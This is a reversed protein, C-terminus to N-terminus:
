RRACEGHKGQPDGQARPSRGPWRVGSALEEPGGKQVAGQLWLQGQPRRKRSLPRPPGPPGWWCPDASRPLLHAPRVRGDQSCQAGARSDSYVQVPLWASPGAAARFGVKTQPTPSRPPSPAPDAAPPSHTPLSRECELSHVSSQTDCARWGRRGPRRGERCARCLHSCAAPAVWSLRLPPSGSRRRPSGRGRDRPRLESARESARTSGACRPERHPGPRPERSAGGASGGRSEPGWCDPQPPRAFALPTMLCTASTPYPSARPTHPSGVQPPTEAAPWGSSPSRQLGDQARHPPCCWGASWLNRFRVPPARLTPLFPQQPPVPSQVPPPAPPAPASAPQPSPPPIVGAPCGSDEGWGKAQPRLVSGVNHEWAVGGGGLCLGM